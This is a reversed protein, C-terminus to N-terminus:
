RFNPNLNYKLFSEESSYISSLSIHYIIGKLVTEFNEAGADDDFTLM